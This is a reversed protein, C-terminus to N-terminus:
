VIGRRRPDSLKRQRRYQADLRAGQRRRPVVTLAILTATVLIPVLAFLRKYSQGSLGSWVMALSVWEIFLLCLAVAFFYRLQAVRTALTTGIISTLALSCLWFFIAPLDVGDFIGQSGDGVATSNALRLYYASCVAQGLATCVSVFIAIIGRPATARPTQTMTM